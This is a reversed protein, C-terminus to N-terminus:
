VYLGNILGTNHLSDYVEFIKDCFHAGKAGRAANPYVTGQEADLRKQCHSSVFAYIGSCVTNEM